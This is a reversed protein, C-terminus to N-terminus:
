RATDAPVTLETTLLRQMAAVDLRMTQRDWTLYKKRKMTTLARTVTERACAAMDGLETHPVNPIVIAGGERRGEYRAIRALCWAVRNLSPLSTVVRVHDNSERITAVLRALLGNEFAPNARIGHLAASPIRILHCDEVAILSASRNSGDLVAMEGVLGPPTVIHLLIESGTEGSLVVRAKGATLVFCCDARTDEEFIRAGKRYRVASAAAALTDLETPSLGTFLSVTKLCGRITEKSMAVNAM